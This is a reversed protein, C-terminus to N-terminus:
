SKAALSELEERVWAPDAEVHDACPGERVAFTRLSQLPSLALQVLVDEDTLAPGTDWPLIRRQNLGQGAQAQLVSM